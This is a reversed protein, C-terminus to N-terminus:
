PNTNELKRYSGRQVQIKYIIQTEQAVSKNSHKQDILESDLKPILSKSCLIELYKRKELVQDM